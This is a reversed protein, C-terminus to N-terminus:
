GLPKRFTAYRRSVRWGNKLYFSTNAWGAVVKPTGSKKMKLMSAALLCSGIGRGRLEPLVATTGFDGREPDPRYNAYGVLADGRIAVFTHRKSGYREEWGEPFWQPMKIAAVLERMMDLMSTDYPLIRVGTAGVREQTERQRPGSAFGTLDAEVDQIEGTREFGNRLFFTIKDDYRLDIGPFFYGGGAYEVVKIAEKGRAAALKEAAHLLCDATGGPGYGRACLGKLYGFPGIGSEAALPAVCSVFGSVREDELAVLAAEEDYHRDSFIIGEFRQVSVRDHVYDANWLRAAEPVNERTMPRLAASM